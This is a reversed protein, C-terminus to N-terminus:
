REALYDEKIDLLLTLNMDQLFMKKERLQLNLPGTKKWDKFADHISGLIM